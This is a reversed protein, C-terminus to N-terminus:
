KKDVFKSILGSIKYSPIFKPTLMLPLKLSFKKNLSIDLQQIISFTLNISEKPSINGIRAELLVSSQNFPFDVEVTEAKVVTSGKEEENKFNLDIEEKKGILSVKTVENMEVTLGDFVHYLTKPCIFITNIIQETPNFYKHTIKIKAFQDVINANIDVFYLPIQEESEINFLGFPFVEDSNYDYSLM